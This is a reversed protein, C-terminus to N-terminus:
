VITALKRKHQSYRDWQTKSERAWQWITWKPVFTLFDLAFTTIQAFNPFFHFIRRFAAILVMMARRALTPFLGTFPMVLRFLLGRSAQAARHANGAIEGSGLGKVTRAHSSGGAVVARRSVIIGFRSSTAVFAFSPVRGVPAIVLIPVAATAAAAARIRIRAVLRCRRSLAVAIGESTSLRTPRPRGSAVIIVLRRRPGIAGVLLRRTWTISSVSCIIISPLGSGIIWQKSKTRTLM